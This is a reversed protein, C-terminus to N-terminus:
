EKAEALRDIFTEAYKLLTMAYDCGVPQHYCADINTVKQWPSVHMIHGSDWGVLLPVAYKGLGAKVITDGELWQRPTPGFSQHAIRKGEIFLVPINKFIVVIDLVGVQYQDEKRRAYAGGMKNIQKVLKSKYETELTM